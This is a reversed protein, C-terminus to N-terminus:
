EKDSVGPEDAEQLNKQELWEVCEVRCAALTPKVCSFLDGMYRYDYHVYKKVRGGIKRSFIEYREQGAETLSIGNKTMAM